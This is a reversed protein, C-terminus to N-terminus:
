SKKNKKRNIESYIYHSAFMKCLSPINFNTKIKDFSRKDLGEEICLDKTTKSIFEYPSYVIEKVEEFTLGKDEAIQKIKIEDAKNLRM